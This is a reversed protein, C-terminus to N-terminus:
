HLEGAFLNVISESTEDQGEDPLLPDAIHEAILQSYGDPGRVKGREIWFGERVWIALAYDKGDWKAKIKSWGLETMMHRTSNPNQKLDERILRMVDAEPVAHQRRQALMEALQARVTQESAGQIRRMIPTADREVNLTKASFRDGVQREMLSRYLGAIAREDEMFAHLRQVLAAFDDARPGTAHGDHDIEIVYYRRDEAEIWLPLHNTTFLFCCCHEVQEADQGKRETMIQRETLYTKLANGQSSDQRLHLEECIVLKRTLVTANFRGTLKDVNNQTVVNGEGFLRAAMQCLTSKGSGKTKSYLFPAWNPKDGENQLCWALWDLFKEKEGERTFMTDLFEGAVGWDPAVDEILRYGPRRWSNVAVAGRERITSGDVDPACYERGNWVPITQGPIAHKREIAQQFVAKLLPQPLEIDSFEDRFRDLAIMVVDDKSLKTGLRNVEYYKSDRRVFWSCLAETLREFDAQAYTQDEKQRIM